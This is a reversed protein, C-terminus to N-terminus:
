QKGINIKMINKLTINSKESYFENNEHLKIELQLYTKDRRDRFHFKLVDRLTSSFGFDVSALIIHKTKYYRIKIDKRTTYQSANLLSVPRILHKCHARM